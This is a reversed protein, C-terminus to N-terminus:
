DNHFVFPSVTYSGTPDALTIDDLLWPKGDVRETFRWTGKDSTFAAHESFAISLDEREFMLYSGLDALIVATSNAQPMHESELIPYGLLNAGLGSQLNGQYVAGGGTGVELTGIDPWISPHIIWVPAGMIAKFRARMNLVDAWDFENNTVPTIAIACDANLIGLPEGAGTGRLTCYEKKAAVAVRFLGTLLAEISTPSDKILDNTVETYGGVKNLRWVLSKFMAQTEDLTGGEAKKGVTIGGALATAGVGVTPATFQDLAPYEGSEVSVPVRTVRSVIQSETATVKLLQTSYETPVLYGGQAGTGETMDKVAGYIAHLRKMDGRYISMLFDGFSKVQPDAKGGDQSVYGAKRVAPSDEMYQMIKSLTAGFDGMKAEFSDLRSALAKTEETMVTEEQPTVIGRVVPAPDLRPTAGGRDGEVQDLRLPTTPLAKLTLVGNRPEAPTPTLSADLGLPWRKIWRAKGMPEREVLHAATGSSWGLKGKEALAYIAREYEDRLGLQAEVWVGVEDAKLTAAPDLVQRGMKLDLGHHYFTLTKEHSGFDTDATFFDGELDPDQDTSFRVLYGGVKGDGLAKIEGGYSVVTEIAPQGRGVGCVAHPAVAWQESIKAVWEKEVKEWEPQPAFQVGEETLTYPAKYYDEGQSVIGYEDYVDTLWCVPDQQCGEGRRLVVPDGDDGAHFAPAYGAPFLKEFAAYVLRSREMLSLAKVKDM